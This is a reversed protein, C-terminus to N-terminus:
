DSRWHSLFRWADYNRASLCYRFFHATIRLWNSRAPEADYEVAKGNEETRWVLSPSQGQDNPRLALTYANGPQVM